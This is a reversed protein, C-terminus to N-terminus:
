RKGSGEESDGSSNGLGPQIMNSEQESIEVPNWLDSGLSELGEEFGM